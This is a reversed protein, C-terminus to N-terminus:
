SNIKSKIFKMFFSLIPIKEYLNSASDWYDIHSIVKGEKNFEVRSVGVFSEDKNSGKFSFHFNWKLYAINNQEVIETVKFSPNDLKIYMDEFIKYLKDVGIIDHFPDKFQVNKDFIKRYVEISTNKDIEEFFAAYTFANM